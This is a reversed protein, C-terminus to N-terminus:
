VTAVPEPSPVTSNLSNLTPAATEPKVQIEQATRPTRPKAAKTTKKITATKRSTKKAPKKHTTKKAIAKKGAKKKVAKKKSKKAM